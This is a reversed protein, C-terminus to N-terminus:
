EYIRCLAQLHCYHCTEAEKPDVKADGQCFDNALKELTHQWEAIQLAWSDVETYRVEQIAKISDFACDNASMGILEMNARHIQAFALAHYQAPQSICYLPLQPEDPRSGFWSKIHNYKGTKYDIILQMGDTLEDIRDVRVTLPINGITIKQEQENALVKFDPRKIELQLWDWILQQLRRLELALYRPRLSKESAILQMAQNVSNLILEQLETNTLQILNVQTQLKKWILELTKHILQGKDQPRLGLTPSELTKAHLRFEAFAKFPCAAQQKFISVGGRIGEFHTIAPAVEDELTELQKTQLVQEAPSFSPLLALDDLTIEQIDQLLASARLEADKNKLSHSFIVHAASHQFQQMLRECYILEREATAHPMQWKKQLTHPIFPNPRAPPPWNLDDMGMVWLYQFPIDAAELLGLIQIPAEPSQIQFINKATLRTLYHLAKKYTQAPLVSTLTKAHNLLEVWAQIVQYEESNV